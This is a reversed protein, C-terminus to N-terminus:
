MNEMSETWEPAPFIELKVGLINKWLGKDKIDAVPLFL